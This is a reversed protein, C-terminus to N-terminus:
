VINAHREFFKQAVLRSIRSVFNTEHGVAFFKRSLVNVRNLFEARNGHEDVEVQADFFNGRENIIRVRRMKTVAFHVRLNVANLFKAAVFNPESRNLAVSIKARAQIFVSSSLVQMIRGNKWM